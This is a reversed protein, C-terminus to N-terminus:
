EDPTAPEEPADADPSAHAARAAAHDKNFKDVLTALMEASKRKVTTANPDDYIPEWKAYLEEAKKCDRGGLLFYGAGMIALGGGGSAFGGAIYAPKRPNGFGNILLFYAATVGLGGLGEVIRGRKCHSTAARLHEHDAVFEPSASVAVTGIKVPKGDATATATRVNIIESKHTRVEMCDGGSCYDSRETYGRRERASGVELDLFTDPPLQAQDVAPVKRPMKAMFCGPATALGVAIFAGFVAKFATM